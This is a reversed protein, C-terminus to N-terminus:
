WTVVFGSAGEPAEDTVEVSGVVAQPPGV